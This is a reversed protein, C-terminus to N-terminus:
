HRYVRDPLNFGKQDPQIRGLLNFSGTPQQGNQELTNDPSCAFPAHWM